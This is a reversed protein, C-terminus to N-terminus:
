EFRSQLYCDETKSISKKCIIDNICIIQIYKSNQAIFKSFNVNSSMCFSKNYKKKM